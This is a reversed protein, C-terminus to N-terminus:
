FDRPRGRLAGEAASDFLESDLLGALQGSVFRRLEEDASAMEEVLEERSDVLVIVDEFDKSGFM